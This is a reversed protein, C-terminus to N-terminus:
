SLPSTGVEVAKPKRVKKFSTKPDNGAAVGVNQRWLWKGSKQMTFNPSATCSWVCVCVCVCVRVHM